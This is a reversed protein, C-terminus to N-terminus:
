VIGGNNKIVDAIVKAPDVGGFMAERLLFTNHTQGPLIIKEILNDWELLKKYYAESDGRTGDYEAIIASHALIYYKKLNLSEALLKIDDIITDMTVSEPNELANNEIWYMDSSYVTFNTTFKKSLTRFSPTGLCILLCPVGSGAKIVPYTKGRLTVHIIEDPKILSFNSM